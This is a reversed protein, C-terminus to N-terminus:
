GRRHREALTRLNSLVEPCDSVLVGLRGDELEVCYYHDYQLYFAEEGLMAALPIMVTVIAVVDDRVLGFRALMILNVSFAVVNLLLLWRNKRDESCGVIPHGRLISYDESVFVEGDEVYSPFAPSLPGLMSGMWVWFWGLVLGSVVCLLAVISRDQWDSGWQFLYYIALPLTKPALYRSLNSM